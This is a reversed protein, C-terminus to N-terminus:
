IEKDTRAMEPSNVCPTVSGSGAAQAGRIAEHEFTRASWAKFRAFM